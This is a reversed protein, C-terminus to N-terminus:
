VQQCNSDIRLLRWRSLFKSVGGSVEPRCRSRHGDGRGPIHYLVNDVGVIMIRYSNDYEEM